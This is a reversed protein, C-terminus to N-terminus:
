EPRRRALYVSTEYKMTVLGNSQSENFLDTFQQTLQAVGAADKPAYSASFARNIVLDLDMEQENYFNTRSANEFLPCSLIPEGAVGRKMEVKSTEPFTRFLDGYGKTFANSEDRENWMLVVYGGPKLIRHFEEFAKEADLWHFAQASLIADASKDALRTDEGTGERYDPTVYGPETKKESEKSQATKRMDENPEIGIVKIGREAFIRTSIGTGCGVDVLISEGALNCQSVIFDIADSPYGPRAKAYM